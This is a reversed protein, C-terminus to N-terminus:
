AHPVEISSLILELMRNSRDETWGDTTGMLQSVDETWARSVLLWAVQEPDVRDLITGERQGQRVIEALEEVLMLHNAGLAERLGEAPPAAIFEFMAPLFGAGTSSVLQSHRHAIERLRELATGENTLRHIAQVKEFVLDLTALLIERRNSFHAYLAPTTVDIAQAIRSLTTGRVGYQAVLDLTANVIQERRAQHELRRHVAM